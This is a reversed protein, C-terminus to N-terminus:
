RWGRFPEYIRVALLLESAGFASGVDTTGLPVGSQSTTITSVGGAVEFFRYGLDLVIRRSLAWTVGGGAQWALSTIGAGGDISVNEVPIEGAIGSRYGGAGIGGGLYLELGDRIEVDRWLNVLTSWGHDAHVNVDFGDINSTRSLPDRYRGEFELRWGAECSEFDIGAAAGATFLPDNAAPLEDVTLTAFSSGVIGAVYFRPEHVHDAAAAVGGAAAFVMGVLAATWGAATALSQECRM